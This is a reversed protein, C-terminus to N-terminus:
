PSRISPCVVTTPPSYALFHYHHFQICVKPLAWLTRDDSLNTVLLGGQNATTIIYGALEDVKIRHIVHTWDPSTSKHEVVISPAEGKWSRQIQLRRRGSITDAHDYLCEVQDFIYTCLDKWTKVGELVKNSYRSGLQNFEATPSSIYSHLSAATHYITNEHLICFENWSKCVARLRCLCTCNLYSLIGLSLETPLNFM